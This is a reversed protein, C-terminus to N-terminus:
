GGGGSKKLQELILADEAAGLAAHASTPRVFVTLERVKGQEDLSFIDLGHVQVTGIRGKFEMIAEKEGPWTREYRFDELVRPITQLVIAFHMKDRIPKFFRPTNLEVEEALWGYVSNYNKTRLAELVGDIFAQTTASV